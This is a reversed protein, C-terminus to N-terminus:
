LRLEPMDVEGDFFKKWEKAWDSRYDSKDLMSFRSTEDDYPSDPRSILYFDEKSLTVEKCNFVPCYRCFDLSDTDGLFKCSRPCEDPIEVKEPSVLM